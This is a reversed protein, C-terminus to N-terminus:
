GRIAYLELNMNIQYEEGNFYSLGTGDAKTNWSSILSEETNFSVNSGMVITDGRAIGDDVVVTDTALNSHYTISVTNMIGLTGVMSVKFSEAGLLEVEEEDSSELAHAITYLKALEFPEFYMKGSFQKDYIPDYCIVQFENKSFNLQMLKRYDDISM